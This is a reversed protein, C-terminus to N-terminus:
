VVSKRDPGGRTIDVHPHRAPRGRQQVAAGHAPPQPGLQGAALGWSGVLRAQLEDSAGGAPVERDAAGASGGVLRGTGARGAGSLGYLAPMGVEVGVEAAGASRGSPTPTISGRLRGAVSMRVKARRASSSPKSSSHTTSSRPKWPPKVWAAIARVAVSRM